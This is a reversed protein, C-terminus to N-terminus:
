DRPPTSPSALPPEGRLRLALDTAIRRDLAVLHHSLILRGPVWIPQTGPPATNTAGVWGDRLVAYPVVTYGADGLGDDLRELFASGAHMQRTAEDIGIYDALAAGRHPSALTYLTAIRLRRSGDGRDSAAWRAVLGGMSIAVVDVETTAAPDDSPWHRDVFAVVRDGLPTISDTFPYSMVVVQGEEAGTLAEIRGAIFAATGPPSRWGSLVLVPRDLGTPAARMRELERSIDASTAPFAPNHAPLRICAAAAVAGVGVLV